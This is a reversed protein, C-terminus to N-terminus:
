PLDTIQKALALLSKKQIRLFTLEDFATQHIQRLEVEYKEVIEIKANVTQIDKGITELSNKEPSNM